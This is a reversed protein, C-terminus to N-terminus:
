EEHWILVIKEEYIRIPPIMRKRNLGYYKELVLDFALERM